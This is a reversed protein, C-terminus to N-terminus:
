KIACRGERGFPGVLRCSHHLLQFIITLLINGRASSRRATISACAGTLSCGYQHGLRMGIEDDHAIM